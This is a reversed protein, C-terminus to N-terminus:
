VAGYRFGLPRGKQSTDIIAGTFQDDFGYSGDCLLVVGDPTSRVTQVRYKVPHHTDYCLFEDGVAVGGSLSLIGFEVSGQMQGRRSKIVKFVSM